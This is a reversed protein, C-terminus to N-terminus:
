ALKPCPGTAARGRGQERGPREARAPLGKAAGGLNSEGAGRFFFKKGSTSGSRNRASSFGRGSSFAGATRRDREFLGEPGLTRM